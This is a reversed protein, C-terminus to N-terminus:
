WHKGPFGPVTVDHESFNGKEAGGHCAVCNGATKVRPDSWTEAPIKRHRREFWPTRTLRPPNSASLHRDEQTSANLELFASVDRVEAPTMSADSGFHKDLGKMLAQWDRAVMLGPPYALHCGACEASWVTSSGTIRLSQALSLASALGLGLMAIAASIRLLRKTDPMMLKM